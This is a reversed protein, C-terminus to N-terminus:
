EWGEPYEYEEPDEIEQKFESCVEDYNQIKRRLEKQVEEKSKRNKRNLKLIENARNKGEEPDVEERDLTKMLFPDTKKGDVMVKCYAFRNELKELHHSELFPAFVKTMYGSSETGVRFCISTGVNDMIASLVSEIQKVRQHALVAQVGYKRLEDMLSEIEAPNNPIFNQFEDILLLTENKMEEKSRSMFAMKTKSFVINGIFKTNDPKLIGKPIKFIVIKNGNVCEKFNICEEQATMNFIRESSLFRDLKTLPSEIASRTESDLKYRGLKDKTEGFEREWFEHVAINRIMSKIRQRYERDKLMQKAHWINGQNAEMLAYAVQRMIKESRVGWSDSFTQKMINLFEEATENVIDSRSMNEDPYIKMFNFPVPYESDSFDYFLVRDMHEEPILQLLEDSLEGHPDMLIVGKNERVKEQFLRKLLETKGVGIGGIIHVHRRADQPKLGFPMVNAKYIINGIINKETEFKVVPPPLQVQTNRRIESLRLEMEPLCFTFGALEGPILINYRKQVPMFRKQCRHYYLNGAFIREKKLRNFHDLNNFAAAVGRVRDRIGKGFFGIGLIRIEVEYGSKLVKESAARIEQRETRTNDNVVRTSGSGKSAIEKLVENKLNHWETEMDKLFAAQGPRIGKKEFHKIARRGKTQWERGVPKILVQVMLKEHWELDTMAALITDIINKREAIPFVYSYGNKIKFGRIMLGKIDKEFEGAKKLEKIQKLKQKIVKLPIMHDAVEEVVCDPYCVYIQDEVTKKFRRPVWVFFEIQKHRGVVEWSLYPQGESLTRWKTNLLLGHFYMLLQEIRQLEAANQPLIRIVAADKMYKRAHYAQAIYNSLQYILIMATVIILVIIVFKFLTLLELTKLKGYFDNLYQTYKSM